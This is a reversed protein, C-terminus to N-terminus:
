SKKGDLTREIRDIGRRMDDQSSRIAALAESLRGVIETVRIDATELITARREIVDVRSAISSAWWVAAATQVLLTFILAAPIRKDM